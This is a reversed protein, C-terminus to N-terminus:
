WSFLDKFFNVMSEFFSYGSVSATEQPTASANHAGESSTEGNQAEPETTIVPTPNQEEEPQMHPVVQLPRLAIAQPAEVIELKPVNMLDSPEEESLKSTECHAIEKHYIVKEGGSLEEDLYELNCEEIAEDIAELKRETEVCRMLSDEKLPTIAERQQFDLIISDYKDECAEFREAEDLLEYFDDELYTLLGKPIDTEAYELPSFEVFDGLEPNAPNSLWYWDAYTTAPASALVM